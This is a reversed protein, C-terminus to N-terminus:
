RRWGWPRLDDGADARHGHIIQQMPRVVIAPAVFHYLPYQDAHCPAWWRGGGGGVAEIAGEAIVDLRVMEALSRRGISDVVELPRALWIRPQQGIYSEVVSGAFRQDVIVPWIGEGRIE